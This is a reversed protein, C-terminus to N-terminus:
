NRPESKLQNICRHLLVIILQVQYHLLEHFSSLIRVPWILVISTYEIEIIWDNKLNLIMFYLTLWFNFNFVLEPILIGDIKEQNNDPNDFEFPYREKSILFIGM